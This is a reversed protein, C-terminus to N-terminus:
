VLSCRGSNPMHTFSCARVCPQFACLDTPEASISPARYVSVPPCLPRGRVLSRRRVPVSHLRCRLRHRSLLGTWHHPEQYVHWGRFFWDALDDLRRIYDNYYQGPEPRPLDPHPTWDRVFRAADYFGEAMWRGLLDHDHYIECAWRM